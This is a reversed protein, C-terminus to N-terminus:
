LNQDKQNGKQNIGAYRGRPDFFFNLYDNVTIITYRKDESIKLVCDNLKFEGIEVRKTVM